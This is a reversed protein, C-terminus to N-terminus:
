YLGPSFHRSCKQISCLILQFKRKRKKSTPPPPNFYRNLYRLNKYHELLFKKMLFRFLFRCFRYIQLKNSSFNNFFRFVCFINFLSILMLFFNFRLLEDFLYTHYNNLNFNNKLNRLIM